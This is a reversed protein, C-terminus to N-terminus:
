LETKMGAMMRHCASLAKAAEDTLDYRALRRLNLPHIITQRYHRSIALCQRLNLVIESPTTGAVEDGTRSCPDIVKLM